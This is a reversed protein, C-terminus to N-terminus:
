EKKKSDLYITLLVAVLAPSMFYCVAKVSWNILWLNLVKPPGGYSVPYFYIMVWLIPTVIFMALRIKKKFEPTQVKDMCKFIINMSLRMAAFAFVSVIALVLIGM